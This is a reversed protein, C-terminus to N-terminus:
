EITTIDHGPLGRMFVRKPKGPKANQGLMFPQAGHKRKITRFDYPGAGNQKLIPGLLDSIEDRVASERKENEAQVQILKDELAFAKACREKIEDNSLKATDGEGPTSPAGSASTEGPTSKKGNKGNANKPAMQVAKRNDTDNTVSSCGDTDPQETRVCSYVRNALTVISFAIAM